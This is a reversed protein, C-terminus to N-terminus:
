GSHAGTLAQGAEAASICTRPNLLPLNEARSCVEAMALVVRDLRKDHNILGNAVILQPATTGARVWVHPSM